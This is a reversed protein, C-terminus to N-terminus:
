DPGVNANVHRTRFLAFANDEVAAAWELTATLGTVESPNGLFWRFLDIAHIGQDLLEGGGPGITREVGEDRM